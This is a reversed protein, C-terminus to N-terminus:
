ADLCKRYLLTQGYNESDFRDTIGYVNETAGLVLVGNDSLMDFFQEIIRTKTENDFYILVNRCFIVDFGGLMTFPRILNVQRFEVMTRILSIICWYKQGKKFYKTMYDSTLGRKVEAKNYEGAMARSLVESSIDTALIGFDEETILLHKHALAYEHILIALSYAEQGSSSGASWLRVKPGKRTHMRAKRERIIEALKPLIHEKFAVFPHGDRFFSTENTTIANIIKEQFKPPASKSIKEYFEEFTKCGADAALPELRQRILYAKNESIALGCIDHIYSRLLEFERDSLEM